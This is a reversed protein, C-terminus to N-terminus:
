IMLWRGCSGFKAGDFGIGISLLLAWDYFIMLIVFFEDFTCFFISLWCFSALIVVLM